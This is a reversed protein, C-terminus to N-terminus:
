KKLTEDHLNEASTILYSRQTDGEEHHYILARGEKLHAIKQTLQAKLSNM